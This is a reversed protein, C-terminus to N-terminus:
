PSPPNEPNSGGRCGIPFEPGAGHGAAGPPGDAPTQVISDVPGQDPNLDNLGSFACASNAHAPAATRGSDPPIPESGDISPTGPPGKVEGAFAASASAGALAATCLAVALLSKKRM